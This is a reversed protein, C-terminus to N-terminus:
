DICEEIRLNALNITFIFSKNIINYLDDFIDELQLDIVM